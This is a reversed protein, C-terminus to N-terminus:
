GKMASQVTPHAHKRTVHSPTSAGDQGTSKTTFCGGYRRGKSVCPEHRRTQEVGSSAGAATDKAMRWSTSSPGGILLSQLQFHRLVSHRLRQRSVRGRLCPVLYRPRASQVLYQSMLEGRTVGSVLARRIAVKRVLFCCGDVATVGMWHYASPALTGNPVPRPLQYHIQVQGNEIFPTRVSSRITNGFLPESVISRERQDPETASLQPLAHPNKLTGAM